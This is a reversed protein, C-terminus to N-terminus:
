GMTVYVRLNYHGNICSRASCCDSLSGNEDVAEPCLLLADELCETFIYCEVSCGVKECRVKRALLSPLAIEMLPFVM